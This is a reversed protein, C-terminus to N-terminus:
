ENLETNSNVPVSIYAIGDKDLLDLIHGLVKSRISDGELQNFVDICIITKYNRSKIEKPGHIADYSDIKLHESDYGYGSGYDLAPRVILGYKVLFKVPPSYEDRKPADSIAEELTEKNVIKYRKSKM